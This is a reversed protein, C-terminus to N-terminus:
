HGALKRLKSAVLKHVVEIGASAGYGVKHRTLSALYYANLIHGLSDLICLHVRLHVVDVVSQEICAVHLINEVILENGLMTTRINDNGVRWAGTHVGVHYLSYKTGVGLANDVYAAVRGSLGAVELSKIYGIANLSHLRHIHERMSRM